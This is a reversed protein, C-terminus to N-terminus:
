YTMRRSMRAINSNEPTGYPLVNWSMWEDIVFDQMEWVLLTDLPPSLYLKWSVAAGQM